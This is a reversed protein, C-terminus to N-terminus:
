QSGGPHRGEDVEDEVAGQHAHPQHLDGGDLFPHADAVRRQSAQQHEEAEAREYAHLDGASQGVSEARAEHHGGGGHQAARGEHQGAEGAVGPRQNPKLLPQRSTLM